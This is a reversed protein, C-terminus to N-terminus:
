EHKITYDLVDSGWVCDIQTAAEEAGEHVGVCEDVTVGSPIHLTHHLGPFLRDGSRDIRPRNEWGLSHPWDLGGQQLCLCSCNLILPMNLRLPREAASGSWWLVIALESRWVTLM